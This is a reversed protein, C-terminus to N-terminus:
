TRQQPTGRATRVAAPRTMACDGTHVWTIPVNAASAPWGGCNWLVGLSDTIRRIHCGFGLFYRLTVLINKGYDLFHKDHDAVHM